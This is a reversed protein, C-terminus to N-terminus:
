IEEGEGLKCLGLEAGRAVAQASTRTDLLQKIRSIHMTVTRRALGLQSAIQKSTKGQALLQLIERKRPSLEVDQASDTDPVGLRASATTVIVLQGQQVAHLEEAATYPEPPTWRNQWVDNVLEKPMLETELLIFTQADPLFLIRTM